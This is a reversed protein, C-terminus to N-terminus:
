ILDYIGIRIKCRCRLGIKQSNMYVDSYKYLHIHCLFEPVTGQALTKIKM